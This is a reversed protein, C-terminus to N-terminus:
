GRALTITVRAADVRVDCAGVRVTRVDRDRAAIADVARGVVEASARDRRRGAALRSAAERVIQGLVVRPQRRLAIRSWGFGRETHGRRLAMAARFEVLEGAQELLRAATAARTHIEPCLARIAPVVTARVAARARTTDDNTADHRWRHGAAECIRESDARALALMPRVVAVGDPLDRRPRVGALGGPGAGRMLRLLMTELADDGQHAVAVYRCRAARALAALARYRADRARGEANGRKHRVAVSAEVFELGAARALDRAADRDALAESAPRLDHVVHGVVLARRVTAGASALAIVLASSDAGGSCAVLTRRGPDRTAAGGTLERWARLVERSSPDRRVAALKLTRDLADARMDTTRRGTM